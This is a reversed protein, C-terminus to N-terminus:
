VNEGFNRFRTPFLILVACCRLCRRVGTFVTVSSHMLQDQFVLLTTQSFSCFRAAPNVNASQCLDFTLGQLYSM